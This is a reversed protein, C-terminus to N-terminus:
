RMRGYRTAPRSLSSWVTIPLADGLTDREIDQLLRHGLLTWVARTDLDITRAEGSATKPAAFALGLHGACHPCPHQGPLQVLQRRVVLRGRELDLDGWRV